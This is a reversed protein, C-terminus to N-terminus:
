VRARACRVASCRNPRVRLRLKVSKGYLANSPYIGLQAAAGWAVAFAEARLALAAETLPLVAELLVPAAAADLPPMLADLVDTAMPHLMSPFGPFAYVGALALGPAGIPNAILAAGEPLLAMRQREETYGLGDAAVAYRAALIADCEAHRVLPLRLALAVGERSRDDHTGGMGGSLLIPSHGTAKLQALWEGICAADDPLQM